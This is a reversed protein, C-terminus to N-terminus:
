FVQPARSTSLLHAEVQDRHSFDTPRIYITMKSFFLKAPSAQEQQLKTLFKESCQVETVFSTKKNIDRITTYLRGSICADKNLSNGSMADSFTAERFALTELYPTDVGM